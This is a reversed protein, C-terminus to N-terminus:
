IGCILSIMHYKDKETQSIESFMIGELDTWTAALPLMGKQPQAIKWQISKGPPESPLSDAQWELSEPKVRPDPLGGPSPLPQGSWYEQRSFEM